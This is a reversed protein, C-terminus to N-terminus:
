HPVECKNEKLNKSSVLTSVEDLNKFSLLYTNLKLSRWLVKTKPKAQSTQLVPTTLCMLNKVFVTTPNDATLGSLTKAGRRVDAGSAFVERM